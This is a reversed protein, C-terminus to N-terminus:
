VGYVKLNDGYVALNRGYVALSGRLRAVPLTRVTRTVTLSRGADNAVWAEVQYLTNGKLNRVELDLGDTWDGSTGERYRFFTSDAPDGSPQDVVRVDFGGAQATLFLGPRDPVNIVRVEQIPAFDSDGLRNRAAVQFELTQGRTGTLTFSSTDAAQVETQWATQGKVRNRIIWHTIPAIPTGVPTIDLNIDPVSDMDATLTFTPASLLPRSLVITQSATYASDGADNRSAVQLEYTDGMASEPLRFGYATDLEPQAVVNQTTWDTTGSERYRFLWHTVGIGDANPKPLFNVTTFVEDATADYEYRLPAFNFTPLGPRQAPTVGAMPTDTMYASWDSYGADNKSRVRIRYERDNILNHSSQGALRLSLVDVVLSTETDSIIRHTGAAGFPDSTIVQAGDADPVWATDAANREEISYEYTPTGKLPDDVKTLSLRIAEDHADLSFDPIATLNTLPVVEKYGSEAGDGIINYAIVKVQYKRGVEIPQTDSYDRIIFRRRTGIDVWDQATEFGTKADNERRIKFRHGGARGGTKTPVIDVQIAAPLATLAFDSTGPVETPPVGEDTGCGLDVISRVIPEAIPCLFSRIM